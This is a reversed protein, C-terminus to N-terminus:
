CRWCRGSVLSTTRLRATTADADLSAAVVVTGDWGTTPRGPVGARVTRPGCCSPNATPVTRLEGPGPLVAGDVRSARLDGVVAGDEDLYVLYPAGILRLAPDLLDARPSSGAADLPGTAPVRSLIEGLSHLQGDVRDLQYRELQDSVVAGVLGLGALLLGATLLLLRTRLSLRSLM